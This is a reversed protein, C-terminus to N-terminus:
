RMSVDTSDLLPFTLLAPTYTAREPVLALNRSREFQETQSCTAPVTLRSPM